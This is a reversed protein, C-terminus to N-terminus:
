FHGCCFVAHFSEATLEHFKQEAQFNNFQLFYSKFSILFHFDFLFMDPSIFFFYSLLGNKLSLVFVLRSRSVLICLLSQRVASFGSTRTQRGPNNVEWRPCSQCLCSDSLCLPCLDCTQFDLCLDSLGCSECSSNEHGKWRDDYIYFTEM